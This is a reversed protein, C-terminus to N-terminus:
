QEEIETNQVFPKSSLFTNNLSFVSVKVGWIEFHLNELFGNNLFPVNPGKLYRIERPETQNPKM